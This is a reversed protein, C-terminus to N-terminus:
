RWRRRPNGARRGRASGSCVGFQHSGSDRAAADGRTCVARDSSNRPMARSPSVANNSFLKTLKLIKGLRNRSYIKKKKPNSEFSVPNASSGDGPWSQNAAGVLIISNHGNEELFIFAQGSPVEAKISHSISVGADKLASALMPAHADNGFSGIFETQAGTNDDSLRACAAAQNAGKGGPLVFGTDEKRAGITEGQKPLRNIEIFVDANVSGVVVLPGSPATATSSRKVPPYLFFGGHM